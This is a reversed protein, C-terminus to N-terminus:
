ESAQYILVMISLEEGNEASYVVTVYQLEDETFEVYMEQHAASPFSSQSYDIDLVYRGEDYHYDYAYTIGATLRVRFEGYRFCANSGVYLTSVTADSDPDYDSIESGCFYYVTDTPNESEQQCACVVACMIIASLMLVSCFFKKVLTIEQFIKRM